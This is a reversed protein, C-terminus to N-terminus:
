LDKSIFYEPKYGLHKVKRLWGKRGGGMIREIGIERSYNEINILMEEVEKYKGAICLINVIKKKPFIVFETVIASDQGAWLLAIGHRIKDEVDEITYSDQHKIAKVILPKCRKWQIEWDEPAKKIPTVKNTAKEM